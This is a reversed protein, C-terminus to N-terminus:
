FDHRFFVRLRVAAEHVFMFDYFGVPPHDAVARAAVEIWCHFDAQVSDVDRVLVGPGKLVLGDDGAGAFQDDERGEAFKAGMELITRECLLVRLPCITYSCDDALKTGQSQSNALSNSTTTREIGEFCMATTRSM